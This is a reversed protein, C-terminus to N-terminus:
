RGAPTTYGHNHSGARKEARVDVVSRGCASCRARVDDLSVGEGLRAIIDDIPAEGRHACGQGGRRGFGIDPDAICYFGIVEAGQLRARGLSIRKAM